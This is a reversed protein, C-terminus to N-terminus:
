IIKLFSYLWRLVRRIFRRNSSCITPTSHSGVRMVARRPQDGSLLRFLEIVLYGNPYSTTSTLFHNVYIYIAFGDYRCNLFIQRAHLNRVYNTVTVLSTFTIIVTLTNSNYPKNPNNRAIQSSSRHPNLNNFFVIISAIIDKCALFTLGCTSPLMDM